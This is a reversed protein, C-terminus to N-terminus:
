FVIIKVNGSEGQKNAECYAAIIVGTFGECVESSLYKTEARGLEVCKGTKDYGFLRYNYADAQIKLYAKAADELDLTSLSLMLGGITVAGNITCGNKSKQVFVDYHNSENYYATIGATQGAKMTSTDVAVKANCDFDTQRMGVFTVNGISSLKNISGKLYLTNKGEFLYSEPDPCRLYCAREKDLTWHQTPYVPDDLRKCIGDEVDYSGRTTGDDGAVLWNDKTWFAPVLFVERGLHHYPRWQHIQRFALHILWWQGQEDEILEAHGAGQIYYGGLNRNTLIPNNPCSKFPGYVDNSRFLCEMHGYETGGEAVMLYYYDGVRYLHPAELFRGGTGKSVCVANSLIDGTEINIECVFIGEKNNDDLGNSIFYSKDGDFLFSPDIGPRNVIIPESWEGYINDTYVYFNGCGSVNTVVMYFRGKYYRITPAFLGGSAIVGTLDLQSKRTLCHGIQEWDVLNKSKFIPIGPFYQFTSCVMYFNGEAYCVSPDPYFGKLVPNSYRM